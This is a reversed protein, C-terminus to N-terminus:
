LLITQKSIEEAIDEPIMGDSVVCSLLSEIGALIAITFASPVLQGITEFNFEPLSFRPLDRSITYLDGVTNVNM